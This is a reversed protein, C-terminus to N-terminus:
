MTVARELSSMPPFQNPARVSLPCMPVCVNEPPASALNPLRLASPCSLPRRQARGVSAPPEGLGHRAGRRSVAAGGAAHRRPPRAPRRGGCHGGALRAAPLQLLPLLPLPLPSPSLASRRVSRPSLLRRGRAAGFAASVLALARGCRWYHQPNSPENIQQEAPAVDPLRSSLPLLDQLPFIALLSPSDM